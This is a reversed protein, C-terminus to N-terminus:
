YGSMSYTRKFRCGTYYLASKDLVHAPPRWGSVLIPKELLTWPRGGRTPPGQKPSLYHPIGLRRKGEGGAAAFRLFGAGSLTARERASNQPHLPQAGAPTTPTDGVERKRKRAAQPPAFPLLLAPGGWVGSLLQRKDCPKWLFPILM